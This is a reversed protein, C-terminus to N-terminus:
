KSREMQAHTVCLYILSFSTTAILTSFSLCPSSLLAAALLLQNLLEILELNTDLQSWGTYRQLTPYYRLGAGLGGCFPHLSLSFCDSLLRKSLVFAFEDQQKWSYCSASSLSSSSSSSSPVSSHLPSQFSLAPSSPSASNILTHINVSVRRESISSYNSVVAASHAREFENSLQKVCTASLFCLGQSM